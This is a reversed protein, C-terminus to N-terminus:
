HRASIAQVDSQVESFKVWASRSVGLIGSAQRNTFGILDIDENDNMAGWDGRSVCICVRVSVSVSICVCVCVCECLCM